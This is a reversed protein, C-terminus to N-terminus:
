DLTYVTKRCYFSVTVLGTMVLVSLSSDGLTGAAHVFLEGRVRPVCSMKYSCGMVSWLDLSMLRRFNRIVVPAATPPVATMLPAAGNTRAADAGSCTGTPM